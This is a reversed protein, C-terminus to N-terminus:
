GKLSKRYKFYLVIVLLILIILVAYWLTKPFIGLVKDAGLMLETVM